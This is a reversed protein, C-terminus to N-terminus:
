ALPVKKVLLLVGSSSGEETYRATDSGLSLNFSLHLFISSQEVASYAESIHEESEQCVERERERERKNKRQEKNRPGL